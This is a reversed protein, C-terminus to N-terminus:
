GDSAFSALFATRIGQELAMRAFALEADVLSGLAIEEAAPEHAHSVDAIPAIAAIVALTAAHIACRTTFMCRLIIPRMQAFDMRGSAKRAANKAAIMWAAGAGCDGAASAGGDALAMTATGPTAACAY